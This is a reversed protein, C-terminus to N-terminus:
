MGWQAKSSSPKRSFTTRGGGVPTPTGVGPSTAMGEPGILATSNYIANSTQDDRRKKSPNEIGKM